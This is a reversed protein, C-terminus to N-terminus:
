KQAKCNKFLYNKRKEKPHNLEISYDLLYNYNREISDIETFLPLPFTNM